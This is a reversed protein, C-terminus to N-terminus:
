LNGFLVVCGIFDLIWLIDLVLSLFDGFIDRSIVTYRSIYM